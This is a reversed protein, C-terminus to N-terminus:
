KSCQLCFTFFLFGILCCLRTQLAQFASTTMNHSCKKSKLKKSALSSLLTTASTGECTVFHRALCPCVWYFHGSSPSHEAQIEWRQLTYWLFQIFGQGWARLQLSLRTYVSEPFDGSSCEEKWKWTMVLSTMM